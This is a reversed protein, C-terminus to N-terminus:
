KIEFHHKLKNLIYLKGQGQLETYEKLQDPDTLTKIVEDKYYIHYSARLLPIERGKLMEPFNGLIPWEGQKMMQTGTYNPVDYFQTNILSQPDVESSHSLPRDFIGVLASQKFVKSVHLVIGLTYNKENLQIRFVDGNKIKVRTTM